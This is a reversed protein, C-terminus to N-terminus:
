TVTVIVGSLVAPEGDVEGVTHIFVAKVSIVMAVVPAVPM